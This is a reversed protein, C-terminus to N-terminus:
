KNPPVKYWGILTKSRSCKKFCIWCDIIKFIYKAHDFFWSICYRYINNQSNTETTWRTNTTQLHRVTNTYLIRERLTETIQVWYINHRTWLTWELTTKLTCYKWEIISNVLFKFNWYNKDTKVLKCCCFLFM